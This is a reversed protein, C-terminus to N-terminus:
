PTTALGARDCCFCLQQITHDPQKTHPYSDFLSQKPDRIDAVKERRDMKSHWGSPLGAADRGIMHFDSQTAAITSGDKLKLAVPWRYLFAILELEADKCRTNNVDVGSCNVRTCGSPVFDTAQSWDGFGPASVSMNPIEFGLFPWNVWKNISTSDGACNQSGSQTNPIPTGGPKATFPLPGSSSLLPRAKDTATKGPGGTFEDRQLAVPGATGARQQAVHTLEHALLRRGAPTGPSYQGRGFVIDRGVTYARANVQEASAAAPGDHHVRVMSFDHLSSPGPGAGAAGVVRAARSDADHESPDHAPSIALPGAPPAIARVPTRSFDHGFRTEM